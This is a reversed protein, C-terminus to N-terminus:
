FFLVSVMKPNVLSDKCLLFVAQCYPLGDPLFGASSFPTITRILAASQPHFVMPKKVLMPTHKASFFKLTLRFILFKAAVVAVDAIPEPSLLIGFFNHFPDKGPLFNRHNRLPEFVYTMISLFSYMNKLHLAMWTNERLQIKSFM